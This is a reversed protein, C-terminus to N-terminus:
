SENLEEEFYTMLGGYIGNLLDHDVIIKWGKEEKVLHMDVVNTVMEANLDHILYTMIKQYDQELEEYNQHGSEALQLRSFSDEMVKLFFKPMLKKMNVNKMEVKVTVLNGEEEVSVVNFLFREVLQPMMEQLPLENMIEQNFITKADLVNCEFYKEVTVEDFNQIANLAGSVASEVPEYGKCGTLCYIGWFLMMIKGLRLRM